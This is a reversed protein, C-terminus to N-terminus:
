RVQPGALNNDGLDLVELYQLEGLWSPVVYVFYNSRLILDELYQCSVLGSPIRGSFM